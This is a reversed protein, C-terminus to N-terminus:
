GGCGACVEGPRSESGASDEAGRAASGAGFAACLLATEEAWLM